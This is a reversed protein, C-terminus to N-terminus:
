DEKEKGGVIVREVEFEPPEEEATEPQAAGLLSLMHSQATVKGELAAQYHAQKLAASGLARGKKIAAEIRVKRSPPLPGDWGLEVLIEEMNLGRAALREVAELDSDERAAQPTLSAGEGDVALAAPVEESERKRRHAPSPVHRNDLVGEGKKDPSVAKRGKGNRAAGAM